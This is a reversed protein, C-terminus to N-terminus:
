QQENINASITYKKNSQFQQVQLPDAFQISISAVFKNQADMQTFQVIGRTPEEIKMTCIVNIDM